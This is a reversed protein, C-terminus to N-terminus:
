LTRAAHTSQGGGRGQPERGTGGAASGAGKLGRAKALLGDWRDQLYRKFVYEEHYDAAIAEVAGIMGEFTGQLEELLEGSRALEPPVTFEPKFVSQKLNALSGTEAEEPGRAVAAQEKALLQEVEPRIEEASYTAIPEAKGKVFIDGMKTCRVYESIQEYTKQTLQVTGPMASTEMRSAVNVTDGFIDGGKRVVEGTHLGIRVKFGEHEMRYRNFETIKKQIQVAAIAANLPHKFVALLGDGMKKIVTGKLAAITPLTIEEFSQILKMLTLPDIKSTKETYSVIDTFFVTLTQTSERRLKFELKAHQIFSDEREGALRVASGAPQRKAAAGAEQERMAELLTRRIEEALPGQCFDPLVRRLEEHIRRNKAHLLRLIRSMVEHSASRGLGALLEVVTAEEQENVYDDLVQVAYDDGLALLALLAEVRVAKVRDELHQYLRNTLVDVPLNKERGAMTKLARLSLRRVLADPSASLDLLPQFIASDGNDALVAAIQEKVGDPLGELKLTRLLPPLVAKLNSLDLQGLSDGLLQYTAPSLNPTALLRLLPTIFLKAPVFRAGRIYGHLASLHKRPEAFVAKAQEIASRNLLQCLTVVSTEELFPLREERAFNMIELIKKGSNRIELTGIIRILRNLRRLLPPTSPNAKALFQYVNLRAMRDRAMFLPVTADFRHRDDDTATILRERLRNVLPAPNDAMETRFFGQVEQLLDPTAYQELLRALLVSLLKEREKVGRLSLAQKKAKAFVAELNTATTFIFENLLLPSEKKVEELISVLFNGTLTETDPDVYPIRLLLRFMRSPNGIRGRYSSLTIIFSSVARPDAAQLADIIFSPQQIASKIECACLYCGLTHPDFKAMEERFSALFEAVEQSAGALLKAFVVRQVDPTAKFFNSRLLDLEGCEVLAPFTIECYERSSGPDLLVTRTLERSKPHTPSISNIARLLERRLTSDPFMTYYTVLEGIAPPANIKALAAVAALKQEPKGQIIVRYLHQIAVDNGVSASARIAALSIEVDPNFFYEILAAFTQEDYFNGLLTLATIKSERNPLAAKKGEVADTVAARTNPKTSNM